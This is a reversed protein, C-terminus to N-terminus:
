IFSSFYFIFLDVIRLELLLFTYYSIMHLLSTISTLTIHLIYFIISPKSIFLIMYYLLLMNAKYFTYLGNSKEKM